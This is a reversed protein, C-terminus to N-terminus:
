PPRSGRSDRLAAAQRHTEVDQQRVLLAVVIVEVDRQVNRVEVRALRHEHLRGLAEDDEGAAEAREVLEEFRQRQDLGAHDAVERHDQEAAVVPRRLEVHIARRDAARRTEDAGVVQLQHGHGVVRVDGDLM